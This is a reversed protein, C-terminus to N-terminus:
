LAEIVRKIYVHLLVDAMHSLAKQIVHNSSGTHLYINTIIDNTNPDSAPALTTIAGCVDDAMADTGSCVLSCVERFQTALERADKDEVTLVMEASKHLLAVLQTVLKALGECVKQETTAGDVSGVEKILNITEQFVLIEQVLTNSHLPLAVSSVAEKLSEIFDDELINDEELTCMNKISTMDEQLKDIIHPPLSQLMPGIKAKSQKAVLALAEAHAPGDTSDWVNEFFFEQPRRPDVERNAGLYEQEEARQRAEQLALSLNPKKNVFFARKKHLGPDGHQIVDMTKRGITELTDLGGLLVKNSASELVGSVGTVISGLSSLGTFHFGSAMQTPSEDKGTREVHKGDEDGNEKHEYKVNKSETKVAKVMKEREAVEKAMAEPDPVGLGAEVTEMVSGVGKTVEKTFTTAASLLSTGWGGWSGWGGSNGGCQVVKEQPEESALGQVQQWRREQELFKEQKEKQEERMKQASESLEEVHKLNKRQDASSSVTEHSVSDLKKELRSGLKKAGLREGLKERPKKMGIRSEKIPQRSKKSPEIKQESEEINPESLEIKKGSKQEVKHESKQEIKHESEEGINQESETKSQDESDEVKTRIRPTTTLNLSSVDTMLEHEEDKLEEKVEANDKVEIRGDSIEKNVSKVKCKIMEKELDDCMLDSILDNSDKSETSEKTCEVEDPMTQGTGSQDMVYESQSTEQSEQEVKRQVGPAVEDCVQECIGKGRVEGGDPESLDKSPKETECDLVDSSKKRTKSRNETQKKSVPSEEDSGEDASLFDEESDSSM